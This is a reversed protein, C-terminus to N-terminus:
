ADQNKSTAAAALTSQLLKEAQAALTAQILKARQLDVNTKLVTGGLGRIGNLIAAMDGERDLVFLAASGPKMRKEVEIVFADDIGSDAWGGGFGRVLAGAAAGTLPPAGLSLGAFFGALGHGSVKISAIYPEGNITLRGDPYRVVVATDLLILCHSEGLKLIEARLREAEELDDCGIVWLHGAESMM